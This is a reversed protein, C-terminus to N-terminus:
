PSIPEGGFVPRDDRLIFRIILEREVDNLQMVRCADRLVAIRKDRDPSDEPILRELEELTRQWDRQWLGAHIGENDRFAPMWIREKPVRSWRVMAPGYYQRDFPAHLLGRLWDADGYGTLDPGNVDGGGTGNYTHCRMCRKEFARYGQVFTPEKQELEHLESEDSPVTRRPHSALWEAIRRWDEQLEQEATPREGSAKAKADARQARELERRVYSAMQPLVQAELSKEDRLQDFLRILWDATAFDQLDLATPKDPRIDKGYPHCSGCHLQFLERGRLRPDRRLLEVAGQPPIGRHALAVAREAREKEKSLEEHFRKASETPGYDAWLALGILTTAAALLAMVIVVGAIHGWRRYRGRGLLPLVFLLIGTGVPIGVTGFVAYPGELYKLAQFLFLYYWEPRAINYERQPDVPAMLPPGHGYQGARALNEYWSLSERPPADKLPAAHRQYSLWVLVGFIVVFALADRAAQHPWFRTTEPSVRHYTPGHRQVLVLHLLIVLMLLGPLVAVHLTFFRTLTRQGYESGGVLFTQLWPGIIPVTGMINTGVRTAWYGKQDMPLLWGTMEMVMVIGLALLGLWWTFERPPLHAGLWVVVVLHSVLLVILMQSGFHHLGRILWGFDTEYQIYYVSGWAGTLSPSYGAMLLVGTLVQLLFAVLLCRGWVYRWKAGGPIEHLLFARWLSLWGTRDDLWDCFRRWVIAENAKQNAV